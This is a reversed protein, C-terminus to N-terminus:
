PLIGLFTFYTTWNWVYYPNISTYQGIYIDNYKPHSHIFPIFYEQIHSIFYDYNFSGNIFCKDIFAEYANRLNAGATDTHVWGYKYRQLIDITVYTEFELNYYSTNFTENPVIIGQLHQWAHLLEHSLLATGMNYTTRVDDNIFAYLEIMQKEVRYGATRKQEEESIDTLIFTIPVTNLLFRLETPIGNVCLLLQSLIESNPLFGNTVYLRLIPLQSNNYGTDNNNGGNGGISGGMFPVIVYDSASEYGWSDWILMSDSLSDFDWSFDFLFSTVIDVAPLAYGMGEVWGGPWTENDLMAYFEEQTYPNTQTGKTPDDNTAVMRKPRNLTVHKIKKVM